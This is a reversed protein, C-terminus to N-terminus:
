SRAFLTEIDGVLFQNATGTTTDFSNITHTIALYRLMGRPVRLKIEYGAVLTAKPLTVEWLVTREAAFDAATHTELKFTVTAAGLSAVVTGIQIVAYMEEAPDGAVTTDIINTSVTRTAAVHVLTQASGFELQKDYLM